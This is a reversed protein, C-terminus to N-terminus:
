PRNWHAMMIRLDSGNVRNDGDLDARLDYGNQGASKNWSAGLIALDLLDVKGDANIDGPIYDLFWTRSFPSGLLFELLMAGVKQQGSKSPHTGDSEFDNPLWTLGDSRSTAGDAWLYPGWAIWPAAGTEYDLDGALSDGKETTMQLIQSQVLRKVAFGSEYAYPEPNLLTTAYGAYIRSSLFVIQLNPYRIKCARVIQGLARELAFADADLGPLVVSPQIDAQKLWIVQVQAESLGRPALQEDRVRDYNPAAPSVWVAAAQGGMAGDVIAMATHNVIPHSAAQGAFSWATAPEKPNAGWFEQTTNSMGVSLLVYRGAPSPRGAADLPLIKAARALGALIHAPPMQNSGGGYLGGQFLALYRGSGLDNIPVLGTAPGDAAGYSRGPLILALVLAPVLRFTQRIM